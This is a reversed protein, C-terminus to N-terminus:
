MLLVNHVVTEHGTEVILTFFENHADDVADPRVGPVLLKLTPDLVTAFVLRRDRRGLVVAITEPVTDHLIHTTNTNEIETALASKRGLDQLARVAPM